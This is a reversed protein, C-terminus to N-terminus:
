GKRVLPYAPPEPMLMWRVGLKIDNSYIHKFQNTGAFTGAAPYSQYMAVEADGLDLYRYALEISLGPTVQYSVGAHIAWAFNWQSTATGYNQANQFGVGSIDQFNNLRVNAMGVGAGVFPTLCWWTGLDAYVNAMVVWESKSGFDNEPINGGPNIGGPNAVLNLGRYNASARYEGTVDARVWSNFKYGLGVGFIGASDFGKNLTQQAPTVGNAGVFTVERVDQNSFGIDGRLYWGGFPEEPLPPPARQIIPPLDAAVAPLTMFIAAGALALTRLRSM